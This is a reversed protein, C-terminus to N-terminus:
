LEFCLNKVREELKLMQELEDPYGDVLYGVHAPCNNIKDVILKLM